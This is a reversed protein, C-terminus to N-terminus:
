NNKPLILTDPAVAKIGLAPAIQNLVIINIRGDLAGTMTLGDISIRSDINRPMALMRLLRTRWAGIEKTWGKRAMYENDINELMSVRSIIDAYTAFSLNEIENTKAEVFSPSNNDSYYISHDVYHTWLSPHSITDDFKYNLIIQRIRERSLFIKNSLDALSTCNANENDLQLYYAMIIDNRSADKRNLYYKIIQFMPLHGYQKRFMLVRAKQATTLFDFNAEENLKGAMQRQVITSKLHTPTPNPATNLAIFKLADTTKGPRRCGPVKSFNGYESYHEAIDGATLLPPKAAQCARLSTRDLLGNDFLKSIPTDQFIVPDNNM